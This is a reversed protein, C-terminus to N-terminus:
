AKYKEKIERVGLSLQIDNKSGSQALRIVENRFAEPAFARITTFNVFRREEMGPFYFDLGVRDEEHYAHANQAFLHAIVGDLVEEFPGPWTRASETLRIKVAHAMVKFNQLIRKEEGEVEYFDTVPMEPMQM